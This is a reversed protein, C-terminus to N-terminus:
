KAAAPDRLRAVVKIEALGTHPFLAAVGIGTWAPYPEPVFEDKVKRFAAIHEAKTGQYSPSEFVHFTTLDVICDTGSGAAELTDQVTKWARRFAAELGTANLVDGERAGAVVGSIYVLNGEVRAPAFHWNGYLAEHLRENPSVVKGGPTRVETPMPANKTQALAGVGSLSLALLFVIMKM